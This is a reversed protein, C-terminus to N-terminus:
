EWVSGYDLSVSPTLSARLIDVALVRALDGGFRAQIGGAALESSFSLEKLLPWYSVAQDPKENPGQGEQFYSPRRQHRRLLVAGGVEPRQAQEARNKGGPARPESGQKIRSKPM